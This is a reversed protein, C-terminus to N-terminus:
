IESSFVIESSIYSQDTIVNLIKCSIVEDYVYRFYSRLIIIIFKLYMPVINKNLVSCLIESGERHM